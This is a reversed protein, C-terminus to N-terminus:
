INYTIMVISIYKTINEGGLVGVDTEEGGAFGILLDRSRKVKL